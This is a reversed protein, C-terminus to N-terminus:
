PKSCAHAKKLPGVVVTTKKKVEMQIWWFLTEWLLVGMNELKRSVLSGRSKPIFSRLM